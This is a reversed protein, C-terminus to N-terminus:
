LGSTRGKATDREFEAVDISYLLGVDRVDYIAFRSDQGEVTWACRGAAAFRMWGKPTLMRDRNSANM